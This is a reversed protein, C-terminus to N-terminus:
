LPTHDQELFLLMPSEPARKKIISFQYLLCTRYIKQSASNDLFIKIDSLNSLRIM